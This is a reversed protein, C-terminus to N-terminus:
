KEPFRTKVIPLMIFCQATTVFTSQTPITLPLGAKRLVEYVEINSRHLEMWFNAPMKIRDFFHSTM